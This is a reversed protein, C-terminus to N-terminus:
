DLRASGTVAIKLGQKRTDFVGKLFRKWDPMKHLEDLIIFDTSGLWGENEIIRRDEFRDYNLYVPYKFERAIDLALWTKGVQRPGTIFVIKGTLDKFIQEKQRRFMHKI